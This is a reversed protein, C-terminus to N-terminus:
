VHKDYLFLRALTAVIINSTTRFKEIFIIKHPKFQRKDTM